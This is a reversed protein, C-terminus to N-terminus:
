ILIDESSLGEYCTLGDANVIGDDGGKQVLYDGLADNGYAYAYHMATNGSLNQANIDAGGRLLRKSIRKDGQQSALILLTNGFEDFSDISINHELAEELAAVNSTKCALIAKEVM